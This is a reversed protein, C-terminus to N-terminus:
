RDCEIWRHTSVRRAVGEGYRRILAETDLSTTVLTQRRRDSREILLDVIASAFTLPELGLDDVVLCEAGRWALWQPDWTACAGIAYAREYRSSGTAHVRADERAAGDMDRPFRVEASQRLREHFVACALWTKGVGSAGFFVATRTGVGRAAEEALPARHDSAAFAAARYLEPISTRAERYAIDVFGRWANRERADACEACLGSPPGTIPAKCTACPRDSLEPPAFSTTDM